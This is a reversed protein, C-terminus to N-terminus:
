ASINSRDGYFGLSITYRGPLPGAWEQVWHRCTSAIPIVSVSNFLPPVLQDVGADSSFGLLGGCRPVWNPDLYFSVSVSRGEAYDDHPAIFDEKDYRGFELSAQDRYLLGTAMSLWSRFLPGRATFLLFECLLQRSSEPLHDGEGLQEIPRVVSHRYWRREVATERWKSDVVEVVNGRADQVAQVRSFPMKFLLSSLQIAVDKKWIDQIHLIRPPMQRFKRRFENLTQIDTVRDSLWGDWLSAYPFTTNSVLTPVGQRRDKEPANAPGKYM